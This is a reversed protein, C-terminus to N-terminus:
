LGSTPPDFGGRALCNKKIKIKHRMNEGLLQPEALCLVAHKTAAQFGMSNAVKGQPSVAISDQMRPLAAMRLPSTYCHFSSGAGRRVRFQRKIDGRREDFQFLEEVRDEGELNQVTLM